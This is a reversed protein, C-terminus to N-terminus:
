SAQNPSSRESAIRYTVEDPTERLWELYGDDALRELMLLLSQDRRRSFARLGGQAHILDMVLEGGQGNLVGIPDPTM